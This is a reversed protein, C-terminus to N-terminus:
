LGGGGGGRVAVGVRGRDNGDDDWVGVDVAHTGAVIAVCVDDFGAGSGETAAPEGVAGDRSNVFQSNGCADGEEM